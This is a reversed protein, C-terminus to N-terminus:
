AEAARFLHLDLLHSEWNGLLGLIEFYIEKERENIEHKDCKQSGGHIHQTIERMSNLGIEITEDTRPDITTTTAATLICFRKYFNAVANKFLFLLQNTRSCM